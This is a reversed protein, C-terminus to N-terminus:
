DVEIADGWSDSEKEAADAKHSWADSLFAPEPFIPFSTDVAADFAVLAEEFRELGALACGKIDWIWVPGDGGPMAQECAALAEAYRWVHNYAFGLGAWARESDGSEKSDRSDESYQLAERFVLIAEDYEGESLLVEGLRVLEGQPDPGTFESDADFPYLRKALFEAETFTLGTMRAVAEGIAARAAGYGATADVLTFERWRPPLTDRSVPKAEILLIDHILGQDKFRLAADMEQRVEQSALAEPTLVVIVWRDEPIQSFISIPSPTLTGLTEAGTRDLDRRLRGAVASPQPGHIIDVRHTVRLAEDQPEGERLKGEGEGQPESGDM